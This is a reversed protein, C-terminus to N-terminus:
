AKAVLDPEHPQVSSTERFKTVTDSNRDAIRIAVSESERLEELWPRSTM